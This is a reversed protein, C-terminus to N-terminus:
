NGSFQYLREHKFRNSYFTIATHAAEERTPYRAENLAKLAAQNEESLFTKRLRARRSAQQKSRAM